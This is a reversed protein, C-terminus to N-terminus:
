LACSPGPTPATKWTSACGRTWSQLVTMGGGSCARAGALDRFVADTSSNISSADSGHSGTEDDSDHQESDDDPEDSTPQDAGGDSEAKSSGEGSNAQEATESGSQFLINARHHPEHVPSRAYHLITLAVSADRLLILCADM